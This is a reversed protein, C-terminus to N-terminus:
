LVSLIGLAQRNDYIYCTNRQVPSILWTYILDLTVSYRFLDVDISKFDVVSSQSRRPQSVNKLWVRDLSDLSEFTRANRIEEYRM